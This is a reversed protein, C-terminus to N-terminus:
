HYWGMARLGADQASMEDFLKRTFPFVDKLLVERFESNEEQQASLSSEPFLDMEDFEFVVEGAQSATALISFVCSSLLQRFPM